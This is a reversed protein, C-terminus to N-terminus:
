RRLLRASAERSDNKRHLLMGSSSSRSTATLPLSLSGLTSSCCIRRMSASESTASRQDGIKGPLPETQAFQRLHFGRGLIEIVVQALREPALRFHKKFADDAFVAADHIQQIGIVRKDVFPEGLVVANGFM